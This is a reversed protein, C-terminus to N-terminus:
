LLDFIKSIQAFEGDGPFLVDGNLLEAFICGASWLDVPPGYHDAALLLEPARYWLTVVYNTYQGLPITFDRAMGFDCIKLTGNSSLLLNSTKLDRHLIFMSHLYEVGSLLQFMLNKAQGLPWRWKSDTSQKKNM